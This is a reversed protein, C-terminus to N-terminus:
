GAAGLSHQEHRRVEGGACFATSQVSVSTCVRACVVWVCTFARARVSVCRVWAYTHICAERVRVRKYAGLCARASRAHVGDSPVLLLRPILCTIRACAVAPEDGSLFLVLPKSLKTPPRPFQRWPVGNRTLDNVEDMIVAM